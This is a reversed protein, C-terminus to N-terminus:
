TQPARPPARGRIREPTDELVADLLVASGSHPLLESIPPYAAM